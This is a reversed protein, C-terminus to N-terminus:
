AAARVKGSSKFSIAQLYRQKLKLGYGDGYKPKGTSHGMIEDILEEPAEVDKLRDKISHRFSYVSHKATPLLKKAKLHKMVTASLNSGKDAYRPFGSRHRKMAELAYGVLPIDRESHETKLLRGEAEIRIFPVEGDLMIRAKSLNAIESPRAGTEMVVYVIDRAEANLGDLAGPALIKDRIHEVSFPSRSGDRGGEIRTGAFVNDLRLQLRRDVARIMGTIHSINKNATGAGIGETIVRETWYDSYALADERSLDQIAKDGRQEILIEVARQKASKWKRVQDPSMKALASRQTAEYEAFLESLMIKPKEVGGLLAKRTGPHEIRGDTLLTDVRELLDNIPQQAIQAPALYDLGLSRAIKIADLFATKSDGLRGDAMGRWKAEQVANFRAAVRSAKTGTRDTAVRVKTSIRVFRRPDLHAYEIPTRRYYVWTGNRQTLYDKPESMGAVM